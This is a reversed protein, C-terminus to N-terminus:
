SSLSVDAILKSGAYESVPWDSGFMVKRPGFTRLIANTAGAETVAGTDFYSRRVLYTFLHM